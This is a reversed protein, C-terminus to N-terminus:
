TLTRRHAHTKGLFYIYLLITIFLITILRGVYWGLTHHVEKHLVYSHTIVYKRDFQAFQLQEKYQANECTVYIVPM